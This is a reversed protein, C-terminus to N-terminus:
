QILVSGIPNTFVLKFDHRNSLDEGDIFGDIVLIEPKTSYIFTDLGDRPHSSNDRLAIPWYASLRNTSKYRRAAFYVNSGFAVSANEPLTGGEVFIVLERAEKYNIAYVITEPIYSFLAISATGMLIWQKVCTLFVALVPLLLILALETNGEDGGRKFSSAFAALALFFVGWVWPSSTLHKSNLSPVLYKLTFCGDTLRIYSFYCYFFTVFAIATSFHVRFYYPFSVLGDNRLVEISWFQADENRFIAILILLAGALANVSFLLRKKTPFVLAHLSLGIIFALYQQKFILALGTIFGGFIVQAYTAKVERHLVLHVCGLGITFAIIDPKFESAYFFWAPCLFLSSIIIIPVFKTPTIEHGFLHRAVKYQVFFFLLLTVSAIGLMVEVLHSSIGIKSVVLALLAVGPFYVSVDSPALEARGPYFSGSILYNDAMAIQQLLDWRDIKGLSTLFIFLIFIFLMFTSLRATMKKSIVM